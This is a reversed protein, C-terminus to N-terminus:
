LTFGSPDIARFKPKDDTGRIPKIFAPMFILFNTAIVTRTKLEKAALLTAGELASSSAM